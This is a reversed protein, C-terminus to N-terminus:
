TTSRELHALKSLMLLSASYYDAAVDLRPWRPPTGDVAWRTLALIALVGASAPEAGPTDDVLDITAPPRGDHDDAFDLHPRLLEPDALGSWVLHLPVRVANYGFVAPHRPAPRLPQDLALWDPPLHWVGFRAARLLAIGSATLRQWLPSPAVSALEHLAPFMWYSLNVTVVQDHVFGDPGPLLVTWQGVRRVAQGLVDRAIARAAARHEPLGWRDAARALALAILLDGDTASNPDPTDGTAPDWKWAFLHDARVQLHDRTWRWLRAFTVPDGHAVALLMAYGQGESHSIGGNATDRVRGDATVFRNRYLQWDQQDLASPLASSLSLLLLPALAVVARLRRAVTM